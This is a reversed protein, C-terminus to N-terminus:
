QAVAPHCPRAAHSDARDATIEQYTHKLVPEPRWTSVELQRFIAIPYSWAELRYECRIDAPEPDDTSAVQRLCERKWRSLLESGKCNENVSRRAKLMMSYFDRIPALLVRLCSRSIPSEDALKVWEVDVDKDRAAPGAEEMRLFEVLMICTHESEHYWTAGRRLIYGFFPLLFAQPTRLTAESRPQRRLRFRETLLPVPCGVSDVVIIEHHGGPNEEVERLGCTSDFPGRARALIPM